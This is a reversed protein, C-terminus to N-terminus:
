FFGKLIMVLSWPDFSSLFDWPFKHSSTQFNWSLTATGTSPLFGAGGPIYSVRYIIAYKVMDVPSRRIESGAVTHDIDKM